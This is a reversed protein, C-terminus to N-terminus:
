ITITENKYNFDIVYEVDTVSAPRYFDVKYPVSQSEVILLKGTSADDLLIGKAALAEQDITAITEDYSLNIETKEVGELGPTYFVATLDQGTTLATLTGSTDKTDRVYSSSLDFEKATDDYIVNWIIMDELYQWLSVDVIKKFADIYDVSVDDFQTPLIAAIEVGVETSKLFNQEIQFLIIDSGALLETIKAQDLNEYLIIKGLVKTAM